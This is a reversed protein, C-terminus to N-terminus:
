PESHGECGIVITEALPYSRFRHGIENMLRPSPILYKFHDLLKFIEKESIPDPYKQEIRSLERSIRRHMDAPSKDYIDGLSNKLAYKSVWLKAAEQNGKFYEITKSLVDNYNYTKSEYAM